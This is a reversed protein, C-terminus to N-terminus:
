MFSLLIPFSMGGFWCVFRLGKFCRKLEEGYEGFLGDVVAPTALVSKLEVSKAIEYAIEGTLPQDVPGM